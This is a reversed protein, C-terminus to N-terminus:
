EAFVFQFRRDIAFHVQLDGGTDLSMRLRELVPFGSVKQLFCLGVCAHGPWILSFSTGPMSSQSASASYERGPHTIVQYSFSAILAQKSSSACCMPSFPGQWGFTASGM